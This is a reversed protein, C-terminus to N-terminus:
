PKRDGPEPWAPVLKVEGPKLGGIHDLVAQYHPDSVRYSVSGSVNRGDTTRRLRVVITGDDQMIADGIIPREQALGPGVPTIVALLALLVTAIQSM